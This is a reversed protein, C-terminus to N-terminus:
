QAAVGTALTWLASAALVIGTSWAIAPTIRDLPLGHEGAYTLTSLGTAMAALLLFARPVPVILAAGGLALPAAALRLLVAVAVDSSPRLPAGALAVGFAFFAPLATALVWWTAATLLAHPHPLPLLAWALGALTAAMFPNAGLSRLLRPARTGGGHATAIAVGLPPCILGTVLSNYLAAAPIAQPGLLMLVLPMGLWGTNPVLVSLTFAARERGDEFRRRAYAAAPLAVATLAVIAAVAAPGAQRLPAAALMLPTGPVSSWYLFRWIAPALSGAAGRRAALWGPVATGTLLLPIVTSLM